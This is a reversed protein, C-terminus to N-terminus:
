HRHSDHRSVGVSPPLPVRYDTGLLETVKSPGTTAEVVASSIRRYSLVEGYGAAKIAAREAADYDEIGVCLLRTRGGDEIWFQWGSIQPDM